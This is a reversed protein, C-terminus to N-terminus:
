LAGAIGRAAREVADRILGGLACPCTASNHNGALQLSLLRHMAPLIPEGALVRRVLSDSVALERAVARASTADVRARLTALADGSLVACNKPRAQARKSM